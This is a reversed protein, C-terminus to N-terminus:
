GGVLAAIGDSASKVADAPATGNVLAQVMTTLLKNAQPATDEPWGGWPTFDGDYSYSWRVQEPLTTDSLLLEQAKTDVPIYSTEAVAGAVIEPALMDGILESAYAARCSDSSLVMWGNGGAPYRGSGGDPVPMTTVGWDFTDGIGQAATATLASSTIIMATSGTLFAPTAEASGIADMLHEKAPVAWIDAAKVGADTDFAPNGDADLLDGGGSQVAAQYAWDAAGDTIVWLPAASSVSKLKRAADFLESYTTPPQEPDLGAETFLTKNFYLTPVSVQFPAMYVEGGVTGVDLMDQKYTDRLKSTDIPEPHYTDVYFRVQSNGAQVVDIKKGGAMDAVVQQTLEDYAKATSATGDVKLGPYKAEMEQKAAEVATSGQALFAVNLTVGDPKCTSVDAAPAAADAADAKDSGGSDSGCGALAGVAVLTAVAALARAKM